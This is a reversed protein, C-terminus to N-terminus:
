SFVWALARQETGPQIGHVYSVYSDTNNRGGGEGAKEINKPNERREVTINCYRRNHVTHM